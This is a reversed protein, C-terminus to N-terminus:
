HNDENMSGSVMLLLMDKVSDNQKAQGGEPNDSPFQEREISPQNRPATWYDKDFIRRCGRSTPQHDNSPPTEPSRRASDPDTM